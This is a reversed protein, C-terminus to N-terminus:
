RGLATVPSIRAAKRAPIYSALVAAASLVAPAVVFTIPDMGSVNFLLGEIARAAAFAAVLGLAVGALALRLGQGVVLRAVTGPSAGMAVRVGIEQTRQSVTYAMVGYVGVVALAAAVLAFLTLLVMQLRPQAVTNSLAGEMTRVNVLPQNPDVERIAARVTGTVLMPDGATRVVLAISRYMGALIPDPHQLYPVFMEAKAGAEFGQKVDGVMGVVEMAPFDPSPETGLQIRQGVPDLDPFYQRAMSENIVVVPPEGQRDREDILRGRRLPVGLTSLYTPTVARYGAMIYDDPGRPPMAARNFHITAGGGQMPLMTTIAADRVGPIQRIRATVQEVMMTRVVDDAYTIPSLPLDVVFLNAADFGPSVTTLAAFSRLLLGAGVLLVLALAVETVVLASRLRRHQVNGSGGGRGDENLSERLDVRTAQLAPVLGFILGTGVALMLAFAAVPWEVDIAQARPLGAVAPGSLFSVGWMAVLLGAAAGVTSLVVSEVVLQRVLRGRGAGVAARVAMEKQRGVARALLLNAVNACAILLVLAVAGLLMLLAPRVNQVMQDQVHTVQARVNKNSEPFEQELALSIGTLEARAAELSVGPKLRAVPFIGPHWGRDEPLMAAWPGFPVYLDAPQFLEFRAPLVGVVTHPQNDLLLRQGIADGAPFRRRAFGDALLVVGEAGPQDDAEDFGRGTALAVGLMPLMTATIMKAPVREPESGGTITMNTARVAGMGTFSQARVRWDDYNYRTASVTPFQPTQETLVVVRSPDAYPLPQLLVANVVTFVATNAGIGLALTLVAVWTFGPRNRLHRIALRVDQM